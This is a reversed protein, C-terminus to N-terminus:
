AVLAKSIMPGVLKKCQPHFYAETFSKVGYDLWNAPFYDWRVVGDQGFINDLARCTQLHSSGRCNRIAIDRAHAFPNAKRRGRNRRGVSIAEEGDALKSILETYLAHDETLRERLDADDCTKLSKDIADLQRAYWSKLAAYTDLRAKDDQRIKRM